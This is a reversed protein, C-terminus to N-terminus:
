ASGPCDRPEAARLGQRFRESAEDFSRFGITRWSVESGPQPSSEGGCIRRGGSHARQIPGDEQGVDLLHKGGGQPRIIDDDAVVEGAVLDVPDGFGDFSATGADAVQWRVAWIKIGDFHSEGFELGPHAFQGSTIKLAQAGGGALDEGSEGGGVRATVETM